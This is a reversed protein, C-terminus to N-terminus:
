RIWTETPFYLIQPFTWIQMFSRDSEQADSNIESDGTAIYRIGKQELVSTYSRLLETLKAVATADEIYISDSKTVRITLKLARSLSSCPELTDLLKPFQTPFSDENHFWYMYGRSFESKASEELKLLNDDSFFTLFIQSPSFYTEL